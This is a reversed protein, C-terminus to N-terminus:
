TPPSYYSDANAEDWDTAFDSPIQEKLLAGPKLYDYLQAYTVAKQSGLRHWIMAPTLKDPNDIGLAGVLEM